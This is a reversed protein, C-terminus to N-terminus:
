HSSVQEIRLAHLAGALETDIAVVRWGKRGSKGDVTVVEGGAAARARGIYISTPGVDAWQLGVLEGRRAGIQEALEMYLLLKPPCVAYLRTLEDVTPPRVQAKPIAPKKAVVFPNSAAWGYRLAMAWASSLVTHVRLVRGPSAGKATMEAHLAEVVAPTVKRLTRAAFVPPLHKNIASTADARYTVSLEARAFWTDLLEEVTVSGTAGPTAGLRYELEAGAQRAENKTPRTVAKRQGNVKVTAIWNGSPLKSLHM